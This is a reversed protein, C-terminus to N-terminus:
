FMENEKYIIMMTYESEESQRSFYICISLKSVTAFLWSLNFILSTLHLLIKHQEINQDKSFINFTSKSQLQTLNVDIEMLEKM